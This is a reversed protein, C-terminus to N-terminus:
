MTPRTPPCSRPSTATWEWHSPWSARRAGRPRGLHHRHAQNRPRAVGPRDARVEPRVAAHLELAGGLRGDVSVMVMTHGELHSQELAAAVKPTIAVGEIDMFRKSGVRVTHGDVGVTIGYGVKYQTDDTPPLELGLEHPRTCSRWPSPTISSESRRRRSSSSRSPPLAM